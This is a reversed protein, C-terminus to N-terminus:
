LPEQSASSNERLKGNQPIPDPTVPAVDTIEIVYAYGRRMEQLTWTKKGNRYTIKKGDVLISPEMM